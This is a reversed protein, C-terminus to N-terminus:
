VGSRLLIVLQYATRCTGHCLSQEVQSLNFDITSHRNGSIPTPTSEAFCLTTKSEGVRDDARRSPSVRVHDWSQGLYGSVRQPIEKRVDRAKERGVITVIATDMYCAIASRRVM